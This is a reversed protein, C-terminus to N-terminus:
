PEPRGGIIPGYSWDKIHHECVVETSALPMPFDPGHLTMLWVCSGPAAVRHAKVPLARRHRAPLSCHECAVANGDADCPNGFGARKEQMVQLSITRQQM